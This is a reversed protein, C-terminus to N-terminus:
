RARVCVCLLCAYRVPHRASLQGFICGARHSVGPGPPTCPRPPTRVPAVRSPAHAVCWRSLPGTPRRRRRARRMTWAVGWRRTRRHWVCVFVCLMPQNFTPLILSPPPASTHSAWMCVGDMTYVPDSGALAPSEGECSGREWYAGSVVGRAGAQVCIHQHQQDLPVWSLPHVPFPPPRLPLLSPKCCGCGVDVCLGHGREWRVGGGLGFVLCCPAYAKVMCPV